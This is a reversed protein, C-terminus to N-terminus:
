RLGSSFPRVMESARCVTESVSMRDCVQRSEQRLLSDPRDTSSDIDPWNNDPSAMISISPSARRM